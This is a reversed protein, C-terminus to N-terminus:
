DIKKVFGALKRLHTVFASFVFLFHGLTASLASVFDLGSVMEIATMAFIDAVASLLGYLFKPISKEGNVRLYACNDVIDATIQGSIISPPVGPGPSTLQGAFHLNPVTSKMSPKFFATQLLTNALGYANGKYSHYEDQFEKHAWARRYVVSGRVDEGIRHELRDMIMGYCKERMEDTDELGAALPVLLFLNEYGKPATSPDTLSPVCAYFLPKKPWAPNDYIEVCHDDLSEDFFLNHHKLNPLRKSVGIYYLLSGPSMVRKDWYQETYRRFQPELLQQEIWHMDGTGVVIDCEIKTRQEAAGGHRVAVSKALGDDGVQIKEVEVGLQIEVGLEEALNAMAAPIAHMGGEPYWTGLVISAHDMLSYLAPVGDPAGGLFLVPWELLERNIADKFYSQVHARHSKFMDLRFISEFLLRFGDLFEMISISPRKVYDAMGVRYKYAAQELFKALKEGAGQERAEFYKALEEPSDPVDVHGVEEKFFVRYPPDLRELRYYDSVKKGFHAFFAEFVDPMWYWSPGMDFKFGKEEFVRARGGIQDHRDLITVRYGKKALSCAASLGAFGGGIVVVKEGPM